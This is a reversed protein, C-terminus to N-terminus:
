AHRQSKVERNLLDYFASKAYKEMWPEHGCRELIIYRFDPIIRQLPIFVGEAPHPDHDGHIALVPCRVEGAKILLEGSSRLREAEPWISRYKSFDYTVETNEEPFSEFADAKKLIGAIEIFLPDKLDEGPLDALRFLEKLRNKTNGDLRSLRTEMINQAYLDEFPASAVLVLKDVLVPYRGAFLVSLWAGWSHGILTVPHDAQLDVIDHLESLLQGITNGTQLAEIAGNKRSLERALSTLSGAAGPGGHVLVIRYPSSGYTRYNGADPNM